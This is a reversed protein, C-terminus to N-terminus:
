YGAVDYPGETYEYILRLQALKYVDCHGELLSNTFQSFSFISQRSTNSM